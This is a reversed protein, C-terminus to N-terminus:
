YFKILFNKGLQGNQFVALLKLVDLKQQGKNFIYLFIVFVCVIHVM